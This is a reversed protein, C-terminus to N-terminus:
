MSGKPFTEEVIQQSSALSVNLLEKYVLFWHSWSAGEALHKDSLFWQCFM